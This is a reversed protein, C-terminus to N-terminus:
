ENICTCVCVRSKPPSVASRFTSGAGITVVMAVPVMAVGLVTAAGGTLTCARPLPRWRGSARALRM